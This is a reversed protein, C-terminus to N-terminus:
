KKKTKKERTAILIIVIFLVLGTVPWVLMLADFLSKLFSIM